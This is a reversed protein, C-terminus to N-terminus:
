NILKRLENKENNIKDIDPIIDIFSIYEHGKHKNICSLCINQKCQNCYSIFSEKHINCIKDKLDYDIINHEKNHKYRCLPCLNKQCSICKFFENNFTNSKNNEKCEDCKINSIDILQTQEYKELIIDNIKHNNKCNYLEIRYDEIKIFTKEKCEPCIIFKSKILNNNKNIEEIQNVIINMKNSNKDKQGIIKELELESEKDIMNGQYLYYVSKNEIQAKILFKRFIERTKENLNSQINIKQGNYFFDIQIM